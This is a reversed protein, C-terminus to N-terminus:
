KQRTHTGPVGSILRGYRTGSGADPHLPFRSVRREIGTDIKM